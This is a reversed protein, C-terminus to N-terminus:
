KIKQNIKLWKIFDSHLLSKSTDIVRVKITSNLHEDYMELISEYDEKETYHVEIWHIKGELYDKTIQRSMPMSSFSFLINNCWYLPMNGAPTMRERILDNLQMNIIEHIVLEKIPSFTISVM